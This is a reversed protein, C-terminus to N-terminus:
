SSLKHLHRQVVIDIVVDPDRALLWERKGPRPSWRGWYVETRGFSEALYPILASGFSDRFVVARPLTADDQAMIVDGRERPDDNIRTARAPRDFRIVYEYDDLRNELGILKAEDGNRYRTQGAITFSEMRRPTRQPLAAALRDVIARYGWYAGLSNWHADTRFYLNKQERKKALMVPRLDLVDVATKSRLYPILQDITNQATGTRVSEPLYEPYVTQKDPVIVLLYVIGNQDLFRRKDELTRAIRALTEEELRYLGLHDEIPRGDTPLGDADKGTYFLWGERGILVQSFGGTSGSFRIAGATTALEYRVASNMRVMSDRFGLHDDFYRQFQEPFSDVADLSRPLSPASALARKEDLAPAPDLDLLNDALPSGIAALFLLALLVDAARSVRTSM